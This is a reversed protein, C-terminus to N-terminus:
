LLFYLHIQQLLEAFLVHLVFSRRDVHAVGDAHVDPDLFAATLTNLHELASHDGLLVATHLLAEGHTADRVAHSHLLHEGQM